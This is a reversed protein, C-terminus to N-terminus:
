PSTLNTVSPPEPVVRASSMKKLNEPSSHSPRLYLRRLVPLQSLVSPVRATPFTSKPAVRKAFSRSIIEKKGSLLDWKRDFCYCLYM